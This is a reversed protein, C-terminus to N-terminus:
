NPPPEVSCGRVEYRLIVDVPQGNLRGPAYQWHLLAEAAAATYGSEAGSVVRPDRVSGSKTVIAEMFAPQWPEYIDCKPEVRHLLIPAKAECCVRSPSARDAASRPDAAGCAALFAALVSLSAFSRM